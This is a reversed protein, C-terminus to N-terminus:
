SRNMLDEIARIMLKNFEDPSGEFNEPALTDLIQTDHCDQCNAMFLNEVTNEQTVESTLPVVDSSTLQGNLSNLFQHEAIQRSGLTINTIEEVNDQLGIENQILPYTFGVTILLLASISFSYALYTRWTFKSKASHARSLIAQGDDFYNASPNILRLDSFQDEVSNINSTNNRKM